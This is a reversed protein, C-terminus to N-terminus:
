DMIDYLWHYFSVCFGWFIFWILGLYFMKAWKLAIIPYKLKNTTLKKQTKNKKFFTLDGYYLVSSLSDM